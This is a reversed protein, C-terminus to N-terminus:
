VHVPAAKKLILTDYFTDPTRISEEHWDAAQSKDFPYNFIEKLGNGYRLMVRTNMGIIQHLEELLEQKNPVLSAIMVHTFHQIDSLESARKSTFQVRASMGLKEAIREALSVAESDIDLCTVRCGVVKATTLASVPLAGSGIFLVRSAENLGFQRIEDSIANSLAAFYLSVQQEHDVMCASQHKEVDCLAKVASDRLQLARERAEPEEGWKTWKTILSESEIWETLQDLKVRLLEYCDSCDKAYETLQRIEFELLDLALLLEYKERTSSTASYIIGSRELNSACTFVYHNRNTNM